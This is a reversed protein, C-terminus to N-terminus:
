QLKLIIGAHLVRIQPERELTEGASLVDLVHSNGALDTNSLVNKM